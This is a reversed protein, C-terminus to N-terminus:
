RGYWSTMWKEKSILYPLLILEAVAPLPDEKTFVSEVRTKMLSSWYAAVSLHGGLLDSLATPVDTVLRLWGVESQARSEETPLGIQEAFLLYPFDVGASSSISM